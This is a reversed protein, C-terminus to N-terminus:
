RLLSARHLTMNAHCGLARSINIIECCVYSIAIAIDSLMIWFRSEGYHTDTSSSLTRYRYRGWLRAFVALTMPVLVVSVAAELAHGRPNPLSPPHTSNKATSSM